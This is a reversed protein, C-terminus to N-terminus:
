KSTRLDSLWRALALRIVAPLSMERKSAEACARDYLSIPLKSNVGISGEHPSLPPRGRRKRPADHDAM